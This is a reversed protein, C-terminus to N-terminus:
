LISSVVYAVAGGILILALIVWVGVPPTQSRRSLDRERPDPTDDDPPLPAPM